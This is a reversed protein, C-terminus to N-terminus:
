IKNKLFSVLKLSRAVFYFTPNQITLKSSSSSDAVIVNKLNTYYYKEKLRGDYDNFYESLSSAYHLDSGPANVVLVKPLMFIKKKLLKLVIKYFEKDLISKEFDSRFGGIITCIHNKLNIYSSSYKDPVYINSVYIRKLWWNFFIPNDPLIKDIKELLKLFKLGLNKLLNAQGMELFIKISSILPYNNIYYKEQDTKISIDYNSMLINKFPYKIDASFNLTTFFPHHKLKTFINKNFELSNGLLRYSGISGCAVVIYDYSLQVLKNNKKIIVKVYNSGKEQYIKEVYGEVSKFKKSRIDEFSNGYIADCYLNCKGCPICKNEWVALKSSFIKFDKSFPYNSLKNGYHKQVDLVPIENILFDSEDKSLNLKKIDLNNEDIAINAGWFNALGMSSTLELGIFNYNKKPLNSDSIKKSILFDKRSFKPSLSRGVIKETLNDKIITKNDITAKDSSILSILDVELDNNILYKSVNRGIIGNGIVAIKM